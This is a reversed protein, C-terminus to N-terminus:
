ENPENGILQVWNSVQRSLQVLFLLPANRVIDERSSVPAPGVMRKVRVVYPNGWEQGQAKQPSLTSIFQKLRM